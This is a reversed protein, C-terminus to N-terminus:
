GSAPPAQPVTPDTFGVGCLQRTYENVRTAAQQSARATDAALQVSAPDNPVVSAATEVSAVLTDWEAEIALPASDRLARYLVVAQDVDAQTGINPSILEDRANGVETCYTAESGQPKDSCAALALLAVGSTLLLKRM